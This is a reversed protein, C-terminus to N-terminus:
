AHSAGLYKEAVTANSRVDSPTGQLLIEGEAMFHVFECTGWILDLDHEIILISLDTEQTKTRMLEMVKDTEEQPLGATPEDMLLFRPKLLLCRLIDLLKKEGASGARGDPDQFTFIDLYEDIEQDARRLFAKDRLVKYFKEQEAGALSLLLSERITLSEFDQIVQNTKVVGMRAIADPSHQTLLVTGDPSHYEIRGRDPSVVHTILKMLTTKGAGNPGILGEIGHAGLVLDDIDVVTRGGYHKHVDHLHLTKAGAAPSGPPRTASSAGTM